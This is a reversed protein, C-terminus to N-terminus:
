KQQELENAWTRLQEVTGTDLKLEEAHKLLYPIQSISITITPLVPPKALERKIRKLARNLEEATLSM